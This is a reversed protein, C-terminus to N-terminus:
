ENARSPAPHWFIPICFGVKKLSDVKIDPTAAKNSVPVVKKDGARAHFLGASPLWCAEAGACCAGAALAACSEEAAAGAFGSALFVGSAFGAAFVGAFFGDADAPECDSAVGFVEAPLAGAAEVLCVSAAFVPAAAVGFAPVAAAVLVPFGGAPLVAAPM